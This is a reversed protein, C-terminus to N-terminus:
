MAGRRPALSVTCSHMSAGQPDFNLPHWAMILRAEGRGSAKEHFDMKELHVQPFTRLCILQLPPLPPSCLQGTPLCLSLFVIVKYLIFVEWLCVERASSVRTDKWKCEAKGIFMKSKEKGAVEEDFNKRTLMLLSEPNLGQNSSETTQCSSSRTLSSLDRKWSISVATHMWFRKPRSM